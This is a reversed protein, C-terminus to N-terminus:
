RRQRRVVQWGVPLDCREWFGDDVDDSRWFWGGEWVGHVRGADGVMLEAIDIAMEWTLAAITEEVLTGDVEILVRAARVDHGGSVETVSGDPGSLSWIPLGDADQELGQAIAADLDAAIVFGTTSFSWFLDTWVADYADKDDDL